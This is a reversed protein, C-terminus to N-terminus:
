TTEPDYQVLFTDTGTKTQQSIVVVGNSWSTVFCYQTNYESVRGGEVVETVYTLAELDSLFTTENKIILKSM